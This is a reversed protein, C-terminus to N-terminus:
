NPTGFLLMVSVISAKYSNFVKHGKRNAVSIEWDRDKHEADAYLAYRTVSSMTLITEKEYDKLTSNALVSNEYSVISDYVESYDLGQQAILTEIFAILDLKAEDSLDCSEVIAALQNEPDEMILAVQEPTITVIRRKTETSGNYNTALFEIQDTTGQLSSPAANNQLYVAVLNYYEKGKGDFPNARNEPIKSDNKLDVANSNSKESSSFDSETSCSIVFISLVICLLFTKM